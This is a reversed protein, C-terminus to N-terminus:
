NRALQRNFLTMYWCVIIFLARAVHSLNSLISQVLQPLDPKPLWQFVVAFSWLTSLLALANLALFVTMLLSPMPSQGTRNTALRCWQGYAVFAWANEVLPVLIPLVALIPAPKWVPEENAPPLQLVNCWSRYLLVVLGISSGISLLSSGALYYLALECLEMSNTEGPIYGMIYLLLRQVLSCLLIVAFAIETRRFSPPTM